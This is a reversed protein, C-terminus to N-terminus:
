FLRRFDYISLGSGSLTQFNKKLCLSLREEKEESDTTLSENERLARHETFLIMQWVMVGLAVLLLLIVLYKGKM